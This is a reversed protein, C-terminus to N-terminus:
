SQLIFNLQKFFVDWSLQERATKIANAQIQNYLTKNSSLLQFQHNFDEITDYHVVNVLNEFCNVM